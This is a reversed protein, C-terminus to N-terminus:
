SSSSDLTSLLGSRNRDVKALTEKLAFDHGRVIVVGDLLLHAPVRVLDASSMDAAELHELIRRSVISTVARHAPTSLLGHVERFLRKIESEISRQDPDYRQLTLWEHALEFDVRGVTEHILTVDDISEIRASRAEVAAGGALAVVARRVILMNRDSATDWDFVRSPIPEVHAIECHPLRRWVFDAPEFDPVIAIVVLHGAEHTALEERAIVCRKM